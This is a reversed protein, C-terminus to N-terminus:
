IWNTKSAMVLQWLGQVNKLLQHWTKKKGIDFMKPVNDCGLLAHVAILSPVIEASGKATENIDVMSRNSTFAEMLVLSEISYKLVYATPLVFFDTHRLHNQHTPEKGNCLLYMTESLWHRSRWSVKKCRHPRLKQAPSLLDIRLTTQLLYISLTKRSSIYGTFRTKLLHWLSKDQHYLSM